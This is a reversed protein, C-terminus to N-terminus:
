SWWVPFLRSVALQSRAYALLGCLGVSTEVRAVGLVFLAMVVGTRDDVEVRLVLYGLNIGLLILELCLFVRLAKRGHRLIGIIGLGVMLLAYSHYMRRQYLM